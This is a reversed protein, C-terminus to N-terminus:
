RLASRVCVGELVCVGGANEMFAMNSPDKLMAFHARASAYVDDEGGLVASSMSPAMTTLSLTSLVVVAFSVRDIGRPSRLPAQSTPTPLTLYPHAPPTTNLFTNTHPESLRKSSLEKIVLKIHDSEAAACVLVCERRM